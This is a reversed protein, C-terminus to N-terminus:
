AVALAAESFQMLRALVNIADALEGQAILIRGLYFHPWGDYESLAVGRRFAAIAEDPRKKRDWVKGELTAIFTNDTGSARAIRLADEAIEDRHVNLSLRGVETLIWVRQPQISVAEKALVLAEDCNGTRAYVIAGLELVEATRHTSLLQEVLPLAREYHNRNVLTSLAGLAGDAVGALDPALETHGASFAHYRAEVTWRLQDASEAKAALDRFATAAAIHFAEVDKPGPATIDAFGRLLGAISIFDNQHRDILARRWLDQIVPMPDFPTVDVIVSVPIPARAEGLISLVRNENESLSLTRLVQEAIRNYVGKRGAFDRIVEGIGVSEIYEAALIIAGPHGGLAEVTRTRDSEVYHAPELGARRLQQSLLVM